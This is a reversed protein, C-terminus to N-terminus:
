SEGAAAAAELVRERAEELNREFTPLFPSGTERGRKVAKAYSAAAEELRGAATLGDGLSDYVNASQPYARANARFAAIADGTREAALLRYGLVNVVAEPPKVEYGYHEELSAYHERVVELDLTGAPLRWAEFVHRLGEVLTEPVVTGHDHGAMPRYEWDLGKPAANGVFETFRELTPVLNPEDGATYYLFSARPPQAKWGKEVAGMPWGDNWIMWPSAAIVGSFLGPEETLSWIGFMGTASHGFLLRFPATRYADDVWPVLEDGLFALFEAAGGSHAQAEVAVPTMDRNRDVNPVAVVIVEPIAGQQALFRALGSAHHFHGEGDLLYLVPYVSDPSREYSAPLAVLVPRDEGMAESHLTYRQGIVVPEGAMEEARASVGAVTAAMVLALALSVTKWRRLGSM